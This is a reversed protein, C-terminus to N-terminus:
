IVHTPIMRPLLALCSNRMTFIWLDQTEEEVQSDDIGYIGNHVQM